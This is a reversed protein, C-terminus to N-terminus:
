VSQKRSPSRARRDGRSRVTAPRAKAPKPPAPPSPTRLHTLIREMEKARHSYTHERLVRRRAAEGIERAKEPSLARLIRAVERGSSAVLCEQGPNLFLEVGEWEDTILCAAAGAAEFVRTAPSFGVRAMGERLVNLVARPTSNFANHDNTYLHGVYRINPQDLFGAEWGSGALVFTEKPLETAAAHFFEKVREERDPLRNAVFGLAGRFRIDPPAPYHTKPDLANYIPTCDRAGFSRYARVVPDGGGYTLITDYEPVLSRFPDDPNKRLRDLTAPADVDLFVVARNVTKLELVAKELLEDFAGVGSAKIIVDAAAGAAVAQRVDRETKAGYLVCNAYPVSDLDRHKQRDLIDPEYFTIIHGRRHLAQILGRYYTAAGNWYASVLSSGYVSIRM